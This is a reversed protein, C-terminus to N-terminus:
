WRSKEFRWIFTQQQYQTEEQQFRFFAQTFWKVLTHLTWSLPILSHSVMKKNKNKRERYTTTALQQILEPTSAKCLPCDKKLVCNDEGVGKDWCRACKLHGDFITMVHGCTGRKQGPSSVGRALRFLHWSPVSDLCSPLVIHWRAFACETVLGALLIYLVDKEPTQRSQDRQGTFCSDM